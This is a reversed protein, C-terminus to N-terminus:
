NPSVNVSGTCTNNCLIDTTTVSPVSMDSLKLTISDTFSNGCIDQFNVWYINNGNSPNVVISSTTESTNWLYQLTTIQSATNLTINIGTGDCYKTTTTEIYSSTSLIVPNELFISTPAKQTCGLSDTVTVKYIGSCLNIASGNISTGNPYWEYTFPPNGSITTVNISGNCVNNCQPQVVDINIGSFTGVIIPISDYISNGCVDSITVNYWTKGPIPDVYITDSVEGTSWYYTPNSLSVNAYILISDPAAQSCFQNTVNQIGGKIGELDYINITDTIANMNCPCGSLLTLIITEDGDQIGDYFADYYITDYIEGIPIWFSTPFISIDVGQTATGSYSLLVEVSDTLDTSDIRSFVYYNTCGEYLSNDDGVQSYNNMAIQGGSTFSGAEIFVGSDYSGDNVDAIVLKIHYTQCSQVIAKATLPVTRGDYQIAQGSGGTNDYYYQSNALQASTCNSSSGSSGVSGNNVNNISVALNTGPVQAINIANNSYTGNIGPGSLFFGFVDNFNSCVYENYEESAFIYRFEITDSSPIFDFELKAGDEVTRPPYPNGINIISYLDSDTINAIDNGSSGSSNPGSATTINGTALIIGSSFPFNSGNADFFGRADSAGTYTINSAQVCGNILVDQILQTPTYNASNTTIAPSMINKKNLDPLNIINSNDNIPLVRRQSYLNGFILIIALFLIERM